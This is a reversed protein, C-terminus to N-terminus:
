AVFIEEAMQLTEDGAAAQAMTDGQSRPQLPLAAGVECRVKMPMGVVRTVLEELKSRLRETMLQQRHFDYQVTITLENGSIKGPSAKSLLAGLSYSDGKLSGLLQEWVQRHDMESTPINVQETTLINVQETTPINTQERDM